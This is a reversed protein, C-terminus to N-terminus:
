SQRPPPHPPSPRNISCFPPSDPLDWDNAISPEQLHSIAQFFLHKYFETLTGTPESPRPMDGSSHALLANWARNIRTEKNDWWCWFFLSDGTASQEVIDYMQGRFEFEAAHEWRLHSQAEAKSFRLLVLEDRDIDANLQQQVEKRVQVKQSYFFQWAAMFPVTLCSLLFLSAINHNLSTPTYIQPIPFSQLVPIGEKGSRM